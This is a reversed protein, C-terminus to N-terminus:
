NENRYMRSSGDISMMGNDYPDLSTMGDGIIMNNIIDYQILLEM